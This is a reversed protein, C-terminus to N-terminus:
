MPIFISHSLLFSFYCSDSNLRPPLWILPFRESFVTNTGLGSSTHSYITLLLLFLIQHQPFLTFIGQLPSSDTVEFSHPQLGMLLHWRWRSAKGLRPNHVKIPNVKCFWLSVSMKPLSSSLELSSLMVVRGAGGRIQNMWGVNDVVEGCDLIRCLTM